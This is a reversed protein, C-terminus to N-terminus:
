FWHQPRDVHVTDHQPVGRPIIDRCDHLHQPVIFLASLPFADRPIVRAGIQGGEFLYVVIRVALHNDCRMIVNHDTAHLQRDNWSQGVTTDPPCQHFIHTNCSRTSIVTYTAKQEGM